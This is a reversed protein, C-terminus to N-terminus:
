KLPVPVDCAAAITDPTAARINWALGASVGLKAFPIRTPVAVIRAPGFKVGPCPEPRTLADL